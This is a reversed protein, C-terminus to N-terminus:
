SIRQHSATKALELPRTRINFHAKWFHLTGKQRETIPAWHSASGLREYARGPPQSTTNKNNEGNGAIPARLASRPQQCARGDPQGGGGKKEGHQGLLFILPCIHLALRFILLPNESKNLFVKQPSCILLACPALGLRQALALPRGGMCVGGMCVGGM